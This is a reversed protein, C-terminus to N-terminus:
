GNIWAASIWFQPSLPTIGLQSWELSNQWNATLNSGPIMGEEWDSNIVLVIVLVQNERITLTAGRAPDTYLVVSKLLSHKFRWIASPWTIIFVIKHQYNNNPNVILVCVFCASALLLCDRKKVLNTNEPINLWMKQDKHSVKWFHVFKFQFM